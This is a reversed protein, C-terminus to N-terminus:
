IIFFFPPDKTDDISHHTTVYNPREREIPIEYRKYIVGSEPTFKIEINGFSKKGLAKFQETLVKVAKQRGMEKGKLIFKWFYSIPCLKYLYAKLIEYLTSMRELQTQM